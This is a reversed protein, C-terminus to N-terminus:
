HVNVTNDDRSWLLLTRDVETLDLIIVTVEICRKKRGDEPIVKLGGKSHRRWNCIEHFHLRNWRVHKIPGFPLNVELICLHRDVRINQTEGTKQM